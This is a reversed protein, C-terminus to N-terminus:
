ASQPLGLRLRQWRGYAVTAALIGTIFPLLAPAAGMTLVTVTVAGIMIIVLGCAALPTLVQRIGFLGPLILGLAGLVEMTAIFRLFPIPLGPAAAALQDAPAVLKYGGAFLFLAALLAQITWLVRNNRILDTM